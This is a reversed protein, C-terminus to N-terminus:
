SDEKSLFADRIEFKLTYFDSLVEAKDTGPRWFSVKIPKCRPHISNLDIAKNRIEEKLRELHEHAILRGDLSKLYDVFSSELKNKTALSYAAICLHHTPNEM